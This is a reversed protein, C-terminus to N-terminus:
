KDGLADKVQALEAEIQARQEERTRLAKLKTDLERQRAKLADRQRRQIDEHLLNHATALWAPIPLTYAGYVVLQQQALGMLEVAEELDIREVNLAKLKEIM